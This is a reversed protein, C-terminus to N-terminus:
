WSVTVTCRCEATEEPPGFAGPWDLGNSFQESLPVTEGHMAAHADRTTPTVNTVWTKTAGSGGVQRAAETTAFGTVFGGIVTAWLAARAELRAAGFIRAFVVTAAEEGGLASSLEAYTGANVDKAREAMVSRLYEVTRAHNYADADVGHEALVDAATEASTRMALAVLEETLETDWRDSDWVLESKVGSRARVVDGQRRLFARLTEDAAETTRERATLAVSRAEDEPPKAKTAPPLAGREREPAGPVRNQGGTDRPNAQGGELVNLPTILEDGGEVKPLNQRGRAENRTMWPGGVAASYVSAQEEFSGALKAAVNFEAYFEANDMGLVPLLFANIRQTLRALGSGLTDKYLMRNYERVNGFSAGDSHGILAPNVHYVGAITTMSLRSAEVFQQERASFDIKKLSMGDELLPTGGAKPGRGTFTAYWDAKFSERAKDSWQPAELPRELVASVRGGNKYVQRRYKTAELQENLTDRLAEVAPSAGGFRTPSYGPIRLLGPKGPAARDIEVPERGPLSARFRAVGRPSAPDQGPAPRVYVAPVRRWSWGSPTAASTLLLWYAEDYLLLDGATAYLLEYM